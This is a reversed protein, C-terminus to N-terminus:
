LKKPWLVHRQCQTTHHTPLTSCVFMFSYHIKKQECKLLDFHVLTYFDINLYFFLWSNIVGAIYLTFVRVTAQLVIGPECYIFNFLSKM